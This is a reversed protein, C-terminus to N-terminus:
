RAIGFAVNESKIVSPFFMLIKLLYAELLLINRVDIIQSLVIETAKLARSFLVQIDYKGVLQLTYQFLYWAPAFFLVTIALPSCAAAPRHM